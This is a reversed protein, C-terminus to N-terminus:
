AAALARQAVEKPLSDTFPGAPSDVVWVHMMEPLTVQATLFPCTGYPTVLGFGPPLPGVCINHTHWTTSAGGVQPGRQGAKPMRFVVGLLAARAGARAYVLMEPRTPDLVVGDGSREKNEFHVDLGDGQKDPRYGDALAAAVDGYKATAARVAALVDAAARQQSATTGSAGPRMIVGAQARALHQGHHHHGAGGASGGSAGARADEIAHGALASLWSAVGFLVSTVMLLAVAGVRRRTGVALGLAALEVLATALGVQDAEEGRALNVLYAVLTALVLAVAVGRWRRGGLVRLALWCYAAGSGLFLVTAVAGGHGLPLGLHIVGAVALLAAAWREGTGAAACGTRLRVAWPVGLVAHARVVRAGPVVLVAAVVLAGVAAMHEPAFGILFDNM